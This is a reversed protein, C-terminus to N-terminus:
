RNENEGCRINQVAFSAAFGNSFDNAYQFRAPLSREHAEFVHPLVRFIQPIVADRIRASQPEAKPNEWGNSHSTAALGSSIM